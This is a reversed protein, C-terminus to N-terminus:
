LNCGQMKIGSNEIYEAINSGKLKNRSLKISFGLVM